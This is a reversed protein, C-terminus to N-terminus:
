EKEHSLAGKLDFNRFFNYVGDTFKETIESTNETFRSTTEGVAEMWEGQAAYDDVTFVGSVWFVLAFGAAAAVAAYRNIFIRRAQQRLKRFVGPRILDPAEMLAGDCLLESYRLTCSDCFSLHEAAELRELEELEGSILLRLGEDTLCGDLDFLRNAM